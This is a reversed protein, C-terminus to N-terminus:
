DFDTIGLNKLAKIANAQGQKAAKKYWKVALEHDQRAGFGNDYMMGLNYQSSPSNRQAAKQYWEFAKGNNEETGQGTFYLYGLYSQALLYGSTASKKIWYFSKSYDQEIGKGDEYMKGLWFQANVDDKEAAKRFWYVAKEQNAPVGNGVQYIAALNYQAAAHNQEAAKTLWAIGKQVNREVGKGQLYLTAINSQATPSNLEAAKLYWEHAKKYSQTVGFGKSYLYGLNAQAKIHNYSASKAYWKFATPFDKNDFATKGLQYLEDPDTSVFRSQNVSKALSPAFYFDGITANNQWTIQKGNSDKLVGVRTSKFMQELTKDKARINDLIHKTFLGNRGIGDSDAARRGPSTGYAIFMGTAVDNIGGWGGGGMARDRKPLPNNRCADLIVINMRNKSYNMRKIIRNLPIGEDSADEQYEMDADVPVLYNKGEVELGHGAYYFLGITDNKNGQKLKADFKRIKDSMQKKTLNIGSIVDFGLEMLVQAMDTADNSANRLEGMTSYNSNGLVLAIRNETAIVNFQTMLLMLILISKYLM